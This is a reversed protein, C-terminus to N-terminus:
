TPRQKAPHADSGELGAAAAQLRGSRELDEEENRGKRTGTAEDAPRGTREKGGVGGEAAPATNSPSLVHLKTM